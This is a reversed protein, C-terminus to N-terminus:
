TDLKDKLFEELQRVLKLNEDESLALNSELRTFYTDIEPYTNRLENIKRNQNKITEDFETLDFKFKFRINLFELIRKQSKPDDVSMLYFPVPVWLGACALDRRGAVWLLYSNLTPKQGPPTEFSSDSDIDYSNLDEKIDYSNFTGLLQRPVTHMNLSLMSGLTYIYRVNAQNEAFDLIHELFKYVEFSPQSSKLVILNYPPCAYFKSEPFQILDDEITVGGLAFYEEPDVEYILHGNLKKIIYDTVKEGLNGADGAWGVIMSSRAFRPQGGSKLPSTM